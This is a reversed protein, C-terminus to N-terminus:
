AGTQLVDFVEGCWNETQQCMGKNTGCALALSFLFLDSKCHTFWQKEM